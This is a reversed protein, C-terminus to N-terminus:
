SRPWCSRVSLGSRVSVSWPWPSHATRRAAAFHPRPRTRSCRLVASVPFVHSVANQQWLLQAHTAAIPSAVPQNSCTCVKASLQAMRLAQPNAAELCADVPRPRCEGGNQWTDSLGQHLALASRPCGGEAQSAVLPAPLAAVPASMSAPLAERVAHVQAEATAAQSEALPTVLGGQVTQVAERSGACHVSRRLGQRGPPPRLVSRQQEQFQYLNCLLRRHLVTPGLLARSPRVPLLRLAFCLTRQCRLLWGCLHGPCHRALRCPTSRYSASSSELAAFLNSNDRALCSPVIPQWCTTSLLSALGCGREPAAWGPRARCDVQPVACPLRGTPCIFALVCATDSTVRQPFCLRLISV